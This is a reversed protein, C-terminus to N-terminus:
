IIANYDKLKRDPIPLCLFTLPSKWPWLTLSLESEKEEISYISWSASSIETMRSEALFASGSIQIFFELILYM